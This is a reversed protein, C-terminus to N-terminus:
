RGQCRVSTWTDDTVVSRRLNVRLHDTTAPCGTPDAVLEFCDTSGANCLPVPTPAGPQSDRIDVVECAPQTGPESSTDLLSATDICPDGVLKKASDGIMALPSALDPSCISALQSRGPFADLFSALRIGPDAIAAGLPGSFTCSHALAPQLTGGIDRLEIAFPELDGVVAAAMIMRPDNKTALLADIFPQVDEVYASDARPMCDARSGPTAMDDPECVVGFRTCRFSQLPGLAPTEPGLMNSDVLSCDDENAIIVVALNADPRVFGANAENELARRMASLHQEIGCGASGVLAIKSFVDRLDGTYNRIRGGSADAVDSIFMGALEPANAHQLAGDDGYSACYDVGVQGIPAYPPTTTASTGMDSTVVGIHLNPLRGDLEALKDMMRPFSEALAAQHAAMSGSNDIVFLLDLNPNPVAKFSSVEQLDGVVITRDACAAAALTLISLRIM